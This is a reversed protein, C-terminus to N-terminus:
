PRSSKSTSDIVVGEIHLSSSPGRSGRITIGPSKDQQLPVTDVPRQVVFSSDVRAAGRVVVVSDHREMVLVIRKEVQVTKGAQVQVTRSVPVMGVYTTKLEYSGPAVGAITFRGDARTFAGRTTGLVRVTARLIPKGLSDVVRGEITGTGQASLLSPLLLLLILPLLFRTM